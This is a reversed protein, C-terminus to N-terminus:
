NDIIPKIPIAHVESSKPINSLIMKDDAQFNKAQEGVDLISTEEFPIEFPAVEQLNVITEVGSPLKIHAYQPNAYVLTAPTVLADYKSKRAYNKVYVTGPVLWSPISKGLTAKRSFNFLREHPTTNTATCHLSRISHLADPFVLEWEM